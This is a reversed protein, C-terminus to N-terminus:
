ASIALREPKWASLDRGLWRELAEVESAFHETLREHLAADMRPYPEAERVMARYLAAAARGPLFRGIKVRVFLAWLWRPYYYRFANEVKGVSEPVISDDLGLFRCVEGFVEAPRETLDEFLVVLISERPFHRALSELQRAYRGQGFYPFTEPSDPRWTADSENAKGALEDEVVQVFSRTEGNRERWHWYHSYARDVPDRLIAILRADPLAEAIRAHAHTHFLYTPTAEGVARQSGAAAFRDRYWDLGLDYHLDFFRLEKEPVVWADPHDALYRALSSTGSKPAGVILFNPQSM